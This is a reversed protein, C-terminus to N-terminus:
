SPRHTPRTKANTRPTEPLPQESKLDDDSFKSSALQEERDQVNLAELIESFAEPINHYQDNESHLFPLWLRSNGNIFNRAFTQCDGRASNRGNGLLQDEEDVKGDLTDLWFIPYPEGKIVGKLEHRGHYEISFTKDRADVKLHDLADTLLLTLDTSMVFRRPSAFQGLRFGLDISPGIFDLVERGEQSLRLETNLVPFGALWATGKLNLSVDKQRWVDPYERLAMKFAALHSVVETRHNLKTYFLIEDGSFKWPEAPHVDSPCSPPLKAYGENKLFRPFDNFFSNFTESWAPALGTSNEAKYATSGVVDASLFLRLTCQDKANGTNM